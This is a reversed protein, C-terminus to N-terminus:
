LMQQHNRKRIVTFVNSQLCCFKRYLQTSTFGVPYIWEVFIISQVKKRMFRNEIHTETFLGDFLMEYQTVFL